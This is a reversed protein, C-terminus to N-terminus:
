SHTLFVPWVCNIHSVSGESIYDFWAAYAMISTHQQSNTSIIPRSLPHRQTYQLPVGALTWRIFRMRGPYCCFGRSMNNCAMACTHSPLFCQLVICWTNMVIFHQNYKLSPSPHACLAPINKLISIATFFPYVALPILYEWLFMLWRQNSVYVNRLTFSFILLLWFGYLLLFTLRGVEQSFDLKM